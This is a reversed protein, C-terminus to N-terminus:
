KKVGILLSSDVDIDIKKLDRFGTKKLWGLLENDSYNRGGHTGVLMNLSFVAAFTSKTMSSDLIFDHIVIKGNKKLAKQCKKIIQINIKEDYMHLLNSVFVVDYLDTGYSDNICEGAVSKIRKTLNAKGIFRKALKVVEQLDFVVANLEPNSKVFEIAFSGPGGGLDLLLNCGSLDLKKAIQESKLVAFDRMASIFVKRRKPDAKKGTGIFSVPKGTKIARGLKGWNDWLNKSLLIRNGQYLPKGEVLFNTSITSNKYNLGKKSLFGLGVLANLLLEIARKDARVLRSLTFATRESQDLLTFIKLETAVILVQSKWYGMSIDSIYDFQSQKTKM